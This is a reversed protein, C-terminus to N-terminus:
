SFRIKLLSIFMKPANKLSFTSGEQHKWNIPIEKIKYNLRNINYLLDIDITFDRVKLRPLIDKIVEKKFIKAGCQTDKIGFNFILNIIINFVKSAFRRVFDQKITIDAGKVKRSGIVADYEGIYKILKKFEDPMVAQDADSFGIIDSKAKKFGEIIAGGKGLKEKFDLLVVRKDKCSRVFEATKDTCGNSVIIIEIDSFAGLFNNIVPLVRKEENYAPIILSFM